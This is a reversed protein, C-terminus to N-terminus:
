KKIRDKDVKTYITADVLRKSYLMSELDVPIKGSM